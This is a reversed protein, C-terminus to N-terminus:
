FQQLFRSYFKLFMFLIDLSCTFVFGKVLIENLAFLVFSGCGYCIETYIM